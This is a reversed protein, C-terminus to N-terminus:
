REKNGRDAELTTAPEGGDPSAIPIPAPGVTVTCAICQGERLASLDVGITRGTVAYVRGDEAQLIARQGGAILAIVTAKIRRVEDNWRVGASHPPRAESTVELRQASRGLWESSSIANAKPLFAKVPKASGCIGDFSHTSCVSRTATIPTRDGPDSTTM